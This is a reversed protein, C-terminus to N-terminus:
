NESNVSTQLQAVAQELETLRRGQQQITAAQQEVKRHERLFENLPMANMAEYRVSYPKGQEDRAVLDPDVKAVDEAVPGFQPIAESGVTEQLLLYRSSRSFSLARWTWPSL